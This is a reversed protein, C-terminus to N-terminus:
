LVRACHFVPSEIETYPHEYKTMQSTMGAAISNIGDNIRIRPALGTITSLIAEIAIAGLFYPTAQLSFIREIAKIKRVYRRGRGRLGSRRPTKRISKRVASRPLLATTRRQIRVNHESGNKRLGPAGVRYM